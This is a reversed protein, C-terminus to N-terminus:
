SIFFMRLCALASCITYLFHCAKSAWHFRVKTMKELLAGLQHLSPQLDQRAVTDASLSVPCLTLHASFVVPSSSICECFVLGHTECARPMVRGTDCEGIAAIWQYYSVWLFTQTKAYKWDSPVQGSAPSWLEIYVIGSNNHQGTLTNGQFLLGTPNNSM